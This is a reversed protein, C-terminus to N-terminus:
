RHYNRNYVLHIMNLIVEIEPEYHVLFLVRVKCTTCWWNKETETMFLGRLPTVIEDVKEVSPERNHQSCYDEKGNNHEEPIPNPLSEKPGGESM